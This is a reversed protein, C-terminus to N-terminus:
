FFPGDVHNQVSEPIFAQTGVRRRKTNTSGIPEVLFSIVGHIIADVGSVIRRKQKYEAQDFRADKSSLNEIDKMSKCKNTGCGKLCNEKWVALELLSVREMNEYKLLKELVENVQRLKSDTQTISNILQGIDRRWKELGLKEMRYSITSRLLLQIVEVAANCCCAFHIPLFAGDAKKFVTRKTTDYDLLLRIVNVSPNRKCATHIPLCGYCDKEIISNKDFDRDLLLKLAEVPLDESCAYHIPLRGWCDKTLISKKETNRDHLLQFIALEAKSSGSPPFGDIPLQGFPKGQKQTNIKTQDTESELLLRVMAVSAKTYCAWHIPLRGSDDKELITRKDPDKDLLMQVIELPARHKCASHLLTGTRRRGAQSLFEAEIVAQELDQESYRSTAVRFEEIINDSESEFLDVLANHLESAASKNWELM